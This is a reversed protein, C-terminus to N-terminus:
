RTLVGPPQTLAQGLLYQNEKLRPPPTHRTFDSQLHSFVTHMLAVASESFSRISAMRPLSFLSALLSLIGRM